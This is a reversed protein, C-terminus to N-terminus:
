ENASVPTYTATFIDPKCPYFEGQVGKIVYDGINALMSGELTNIFLGVPNSKSLFDHENVYHRNLETIGIFSEVDSFNESTLQIASIVVPKKMYNSVCDTANVAEIYHSFTPDTLQHKLLYGELKWLEKEAKKMADEKAWHQGTEVNFNEPCVCASEGLALTFGNPHVASCITTTTDPIIVFTYQLGAMIAAIHEKTVTPHTM